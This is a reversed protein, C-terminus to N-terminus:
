YNRLNVKEALHAAVTQGGRLQKLTQLDVSVTRVLPFSADDYTFIISSLTDSLLRSVARRSSAANPEIREYVNTGSSYFVAYDWTNAIINNSSDVAPLQLVLTASGSNYVTGGITQSALVRKAQLTQFKFENMVTRASGAVAVQAQQFRFLSSHGDFLNFLATILLGTVFIVILLEILTFGSNFALGSKNERGTM